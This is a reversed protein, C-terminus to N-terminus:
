LFLAIVLVLLLAMLVYALYANMRGHHMKALLEAIKSAMRKSPRLILRDVIHVQRQQRFIATRFHEAITESKNVTTRPHFVADFIVRVPNSFGTATYTMEPLLNRVGGAWAPGRIVRRRRTMIKTVGYAIVLLIVLVVIMYSTSMAFVVPNKKGGRHLVVLGRGPLIDRGTQAGLDHFDAVFDHPLKEGDNVSGFFPPVLAEVAKTSASPTVAPALIPIVYTPLIGLGLCAAALLAMPIIASRHPPKSHETKASRSMGLFGMAFAKVFCTVALAATLALGAGCIAFIIKVGVSSLEVSRLMTQLTLWESVFGNFPPLAAISMAGVLFFFATWPMIRILGGLKDLDRTGTRDEVVGSGMLLLTKYFSHNTMHYGSAVFAIAAIAPMHYSTFVLGAGLGVTILGANEISSHALMTKLDNETTAYLIGIFASITGVVLIILAQASSTVLALDVNFRLIGYFGLNLMAGALVPLFPTPAATYARPLWSNVPVLGAKVGFGFFILLFVSWKTGAGLTPAVAKLSAFDLSGASVALILMGMAVALTGAESFALMEFGARSNAPESHEYNVLLYTLISMIEWTLLFLLIDGSIFIAIISAFLSLYMISFARLSYRSMYRRLHSASFISVTLFVVGTILIFLGSLRDLRVMLTGFSPIAWLKMTFINGDLLLRGGAAIVFVSAISGFWAPILRNLKQSVVAALVIGAGCIVFSILILLASINM